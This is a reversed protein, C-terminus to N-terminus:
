VFDLSWRDNPALPAPMPVRPGLATTRGGRRRVMLREVRSIRFLRNIVFGERRLFILLRYGFRRREKGARTVTRAPRSRRGATVPLAGDDPRPRDGRGGAARTGIPEPQARYSKVSQAFPCRLMM